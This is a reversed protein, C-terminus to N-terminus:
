EIIAISKAVSRAEELVLGSVKTLQRGKLTIVAMPGADDGFAVPLAKIRGRRTPHIVMSRSALTLFEGTGMLELRLQISSTSVVAQPMPLLQRRFANRVLEGLYADPPALAWREEMLDSLTLKRRRALSHSPAAVVEIRDRFLVEAKLDPERETM